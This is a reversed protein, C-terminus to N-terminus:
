MLQQLVYSEIDALDDDEDEEEEEIAYDRGKRKRGSMPDNEDRPHLAFQSLYRVMIEAAEYHQEMTKGETMVCKGTQHILFTVRGGDRVPICYKLHRISDPNYNSLALSKCLKEFDLVYGMDLTNMINTVRLDHVQIFIGTRKYVFYLEKYLAATAIMPDKSGGMNTVGRRVFMFTADRTHQCCPNARERMDRKSYTLWTMTDVDWTQGEPLTRDHFSMVVNHCIPGRAGDIVKQMHPTIESVTRVMDIDCPDHPLKRSKAKAKPKAKAKAKSM